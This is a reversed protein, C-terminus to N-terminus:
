PNLPPTPTEAANSDASPVLAPSPYYKEGENPPPTIGANTRTREPVVEKQAEAEAELRAQRFEKLQRLCQNLARDLAAEYRQFKVFCQDRMCDNMFAVGCLESQAAGQEQSMEPNHKIVIAVGERYFQPEVGRARDLRWQTSAMRLVIREEGAGVPRFRQFLDTVLTIYEDKDEDLLLYKEACLGHVLSNRSSAAKGAPSSPGTSKKANERNADIKSQSSM